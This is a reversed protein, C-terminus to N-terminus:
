KGEKCSYKAAIIEAAVYMALESATGMREMNSEADGMEGIFELLVDLASLKRRLGAISEKLKTKSVPQRPVNVAPLSPSEKAKLLRDLKELGAKSILTIHPVSQPFKPNERKFERLENGSLVFYDRGKVFLPNNLYHRITEPAARGGLMSVADNITVVPKERWTYSAPVPEEQKAHFYNDVLARQVQWALKDTMSKVLMLYGSETLLIIGRNPIEFTRIENKQSASLKFYDTGEILHEVNQLFNRKATGEPRGHARDIDKFTIVRQGQYEKVTISRNNITITQM